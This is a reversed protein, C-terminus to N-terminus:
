MWSFLNNLDCLAFWRAWTEPEAMVLTVISAFHKHHSM